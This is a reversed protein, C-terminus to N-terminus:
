KDIVIYLVHPLYVKWLENPVVEPPSEVIRLVLLPFESAPQVFRSHWASMEYIVLSVVLEFAESRSAPVLRMAIELDADAGADLLGCVDNYIEVAKGSCLDSVFTSGLYVTSNDNATSIEKNVDRVRKQAWYLFHNMPAKVAKSIHLLSRFFPMQLLRSANLRYNKQKEQYERDEDDGVSHVRGRGRGRGGRGRAKASAALRPAEFLKFFVNPLYEMASILLRELEDISGWRGRLPRGPMINFFKDAVVDGYLRSAMNYVRTFNGPSRWVNVVTAVAAFYSLKLESLGSTFNLKCGDVISLVGKAALHYQHFFCWVILSIMNPLGGFRAKLRRGFGVNEGGRDFGGVFLYLRTPHMLAQNCRDQFTPAGISSIERQAMNFLEDATGHTVPQMDCVGFLRHMHQAVEPVDLNPSEVINRVAVADCALVTATSLHMKSHHIADTQTADAKFQMTEISTISCRATDTDDAVAVAVVDLRESIEVCAATTALRSAVFVRHEYKTIIHPSNFGGHDEGGM